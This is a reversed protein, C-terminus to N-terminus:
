RTTRALDRGHAGALSVLEALLAREAPAGARTRFARLQPCCRVLEVMAPMSVGTTFGSIQAGSLDVSELVPGCRRTILPLHHAVSLTREWSLTDSADGWMGEFRATDLM